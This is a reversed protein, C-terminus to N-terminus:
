RRYRSWVKEKPVKPAVPSDESAQKRTHCTPKAALRGVLRNIRSHDTTSLGSDGVVRNTRSHDTTAIGVFRGVSEYWVPRPRVSSKPTGRSSTSMMDTEVEWARPVTPPMHTPVVSTRAHTHTAAFSPHPGMPYFSFPSALSIVGGGARQCVVRRCCSVTMGGGESLRMHFLDHVM